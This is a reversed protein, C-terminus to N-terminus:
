GFRLAYAAISFAVAVNLSEKQGRMPIWVVRDCLSLLDPDVGIIENGAVLVITGEPKQRVALHIPVADRTGELAWLVAGKNKLERAALLSNPAYSWPIMKEAGLATKGVKPNEPTPTIGCLHIHQFGTGDATRFIAGVNFTSRINDLMAEVNTKEGSPDSYEPSIQPNIEVAIPAEAGCKPCLHARKLSADAPYRFQCDPHSCQRIYHPVSPM